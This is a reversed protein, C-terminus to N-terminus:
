KEAGCISCKYTGNGQQEVHAPTDVVWKKEYVAPIVQEGVIVMQGGYSCNESGDPCVHEDFDNNNITYDHGCHACLTHEEYLPWTASPYKMYEEWHGVEEVYVAETNEVWTHTHETTAPAETSTGPNSVETTTNTNNKKSTEASPSDSKASETTSAPKATETTPINTKPTETVRTTNSSLGAAAQRTNNTTETATATNDTKEEQTVTETNFTSETSAVTRSDKNNNEASASELGTSSNVESAVEADTNETCGATLTSTALLGALLAGKIAVNIHSKTLFTRNKM